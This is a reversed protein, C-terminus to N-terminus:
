KLCGRELTGVFCFVFFCLEGSAKKKQLSIQQNSPPLRWLFPTRSVFFFLRFPTSSTRRTSSSCPVPLDRQRWFWSEKELLFNKKLFFLSWFVALRFLFRSAEISDLIRWLNRLSFFEVFCWVDRVEDDWGEWGDMLGGDVGRPEDNAFFIWM